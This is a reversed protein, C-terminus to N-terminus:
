RTENELCAYTEPIEPEQQLEWVRAQTVMDSFPQYLAEIVGPVGDRWGRRVVLRHILERAAAWYLTRPRVAAAGDAVLRRAEIDAYSATKVLNDIVSRHSFHHLPSHLRGIRPSAVSFALTEHIEGEYRAHTTRFLRIPHEQWGGFNMPRGYFYNRIPVRFGCEDSLELARVEHALDGGVREDADIVLTWEKTATAIGHNKLAAFGCFSEKRVLAGYREAIRQSADSTRDDIVVVVEDAFSLRDLCGPLMEEEDRVAIVVTLSQVM